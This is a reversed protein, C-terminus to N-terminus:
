ETKKTSVGTKMIKHCVGFHPNIGLKSAACAIEAKEIVNAIPAM